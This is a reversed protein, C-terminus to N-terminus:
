WNKELHATVGANEGGRTEWVRDGVKDGQNGAKPAAVTGSHWWSKEESETWSHRRKIEAKGGIENRPKEGAKTEEAM